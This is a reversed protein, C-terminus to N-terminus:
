RPLTLIEIGNRTLAITHEWQASLSGDKTVVTWKDGLVKVGPKGENIMPEVTFVHGEEIRPTHGNFRFPYVNPEEHFGRGIGHGCYDEVVGYGHEDAIDQIVNGIDSYHANPLGCVRIGEEMCLKTTSVLERANKSVNGVLFMMSTDGHYGSLITTIDINVIDGDKLITKSDPIGHCVVENISICAQRPYGYYGLCASTGGQKKTYDGIFDDIEVTAVGPKCLEGAKILTEAALAGADRILEIEKATKVKIHAM